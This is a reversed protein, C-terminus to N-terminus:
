CSIKKLIEQREPYPEKFRRQLHVVEKEKRKKKRKKQTKRRKTKRQHLSTSTNTESKIQTYTHYYSLLSTNHPKEL